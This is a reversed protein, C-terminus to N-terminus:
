LPLIGDDGKDAPPTRAPPGGNLEKLHAFGDDLRELFADLAERLAGIFKEDRRVILTLAPFNRCYSLFVWSPKDTVLM